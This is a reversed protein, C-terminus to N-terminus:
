DNLSQFACFFTGWKRSRLVFGFVRCPLLLFDDPKLDQISAFSGLQPRMKEIFREMRRSDIIEDKHICENIGQGESDRPVTFELTERPDPELQPGLGLEPEWEANNLFAM